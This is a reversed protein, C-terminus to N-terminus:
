FTMTKVAHEFVPAWFWRDKGLCNWSGVGQMGDLSFFFMANYISQDLAMTMFDIFYVKKGNATLQKTEGFKADARMTKLATHMQSGFSYVDNEDLKGRVSVCLNVTSEPTTFIHDPPNVPYKIKRIKDPMVDFERPMVANLKGDIISARVFEVEPLEADQPMDAKLSEFDLGDCCVAAANGNILFTTGCAPCFATKGGKDLTLPANCQTCHLAETKKSRVLKIEGDNAEPAAEAGCATCKGNEITGGCVPCVNETKELRDAVSIKIPADSVSRLEDRGRSNNTEGGYHSDLKGFLYVDVSKAGFKDIMVKFFEAAFDVVRTITRNHYKDRYYSIYVNENYSTRGNPEILATSVTFASKSDAAEGKEARATHVVISAGKANASFAAAAKMFATEMIKRDIADIINQDKKYAKELAKHSAKNAYQELVARCFLTKDKDEYLCGKLGFLYEGVEAAEPCLNDIAVELRKVDNATMTDEDIRATIYYACARDDGNETLKRLTEIDASEYFEDELAEEQQEAIYREALKEISKGDGVALIDKIEKRTIM